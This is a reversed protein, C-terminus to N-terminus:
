KRVRDGQAQRFRDQAQRLPHGSSFASQQSSFAVLHNVM